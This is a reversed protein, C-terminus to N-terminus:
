RSSTNFFSVSVGLGDTATGAGDKTLRFQLVDGAAILKATPTFLKPTNAVLTVGTAVAGNTVMSGYAAGNLYCTLTLFDTAASAVGAQDTVYITDIKGIQPFRVIGSTSTAAAITDGLSFFIVQKDWEDAFSPLAFALIFLVILLRKM